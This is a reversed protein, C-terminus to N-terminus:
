RKGIMLGLSEGIGMTQFRLLQGDVYVSMTSTGNKPALLWVEQGPPLFDDFLHLIIGAMEMKVQVRKKLFGNELTFRLLETQGHIGIGENQKDSETLDVLPLQWAPPGKSILLDTCTGRLVTKGPLPNQAILRGITYRNHSMTALVGSCLGNKALLIEGHQLSLGTLNPMVVTETGRSVRLKIDRGKKIAAGAEPHQDIVHYKPFRDHYVTEKVRTNLGLASLIELAYVVDKGILDPVM